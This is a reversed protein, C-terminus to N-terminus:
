SVGSAHELEGEPGDYGAPIADWVSPRRWATAHRRQRDPQGAVDGAVLEVREHVGDFLQGVGVLPGRQQQQPPAAGPAALDGPEGQVQRKYVDSAASSSSLTARPPRRIM